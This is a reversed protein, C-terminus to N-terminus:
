GRVRKVTRGNTIETAPQATADNITKEQIRLSAGTFIAAAGAATEARSGTGGPDALGAADGVFVEGEMGAVSLPGVKSTARMSGVPSATM